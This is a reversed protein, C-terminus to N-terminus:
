TTSNDHNGEQYLQNDSHLHAIVKSRNKIYTGGGTILSVIKAPSTLPNVSIELSVVSGKAMKDPALNLLHSLVGSLDPEHGILVWERQSPYLKLLDVFSELSFNSLLPTIILDSHYHLREALIDATQVARIKPSTFIHDPDCDRKRLMDSVKRFRKRGRCTLYRYEDPLAASQKIAQAHRIFHILM